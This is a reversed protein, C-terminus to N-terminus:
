HTKVDTISLPKSHAEQRKGAARDLSSSQWVNKTLSVNLKHKVEGERREKWGVCVLLLAAITAIYMMWLPTLYRAGWHPMQMM